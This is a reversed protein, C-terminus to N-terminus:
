IGEGREFWEWRRQHIQRPLAVEVRTGQGPATKILLRGGLAEVREEMGSLGFADQERARSMEESLDFGRGDDEVSLRVQLPSSLDLRVWVRKAQAHKHVNNLAEQVVRLLVFSLQEPLDSDEGVCHFQPALGSRDRFEELRQRLVPILGRAKLGDPRLSSVLWRAESICKRSIQSLKELKGRLAKTDGELLLDLGLEANYMIAALGQLVGDHIERAIRSREELMALEEAMVRADAIRLAIAAQNAFLSLTLVDEESFRRGLDDVVSLVGIVRGEWLLPVQLMTHVGPVALEPLRGSWEHCDDVIQARGTQVVRGALSGDVKLRYGILHRDDRLSHYVYLFELEGREEDLRLLAGGQAESLQVSHRVIAEWLDSAHVRASIDLSVEYLRRLQEARQQAQKVLRAHHLVAGLLRGVAAAFELDPAIAEMSVRSVLLLIGLPAAPSNLPASILLKLGPILKEARLHHYAPESPSLQTLDLAMPAKLWEAWPGVLPVWPEQQSSEEYLGYSAALVMGDRAEDILCLAGGNYGTLELACGLLRDLISHFPATQSLMEVLAGFADVQCQLQRILRERVQELGAWKTDHFGVENEKHISEASRLLDLITGFHDTKQDGDECFITGCNRGTTLVFM